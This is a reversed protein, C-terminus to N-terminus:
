QAQDHLQHSAERIIRRFDDEDLFRRVPELEKAIAIDVEDLHDDNRQDDNRNGVDDDIHIRALGHAAQDLPCQQHGQDHRSNGGDDADDETDKEIDTRATGDATFSGPGFRLIDDAHSRGQPSENRSVEDIGHDLVVDDAHDDETGDKAPGDPPDFCILGIHFGKQM